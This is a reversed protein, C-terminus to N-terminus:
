RSDVYIANQRSTYSLLPATNLYPPVDPSIYRTRPFIIM